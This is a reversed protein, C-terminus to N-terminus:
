ESKVKMQMDVFTDAPCQWLFKLKSSFRMVNIYLDTYVRYTHVRVFMSANIVFSYNNISVRNVTVHQCISPFKFCECNGEEIAILFTLNDIYVNNIFNPFAFQDGQRNHM